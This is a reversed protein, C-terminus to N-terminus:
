YRPGGDRVECTEGPTGLDKGEMKKIGRDLPGIWKETRRNRKRSKSGEPRRSREVVEVKQREPVGRVHSLLCIRIGREKRERGRRLFNQRSDM